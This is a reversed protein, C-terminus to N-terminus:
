GLGGAHRNGNQKKLEALIERQVKTNEKVAETTEMGWWIYRGQSDKANVLHANGLAQITQQDSTTYVAGERTKWKTLLLDFLKNAVVMGLGTGALATISVTIPEPM